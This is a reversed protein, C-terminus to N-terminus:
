RLFDRWGVRGQTLVAPDNLLLAANKNEVLAQNESASGERWGHWSVWYAIRPYDGILRDRYRRTDFSGARAAAGGLTPGFEAQGLPKGWRQYQDYDPIELSDTYRTGAVVDVYGDPYYPYMPAIHASDWPTRPDPNPSFVWLLNHLGKTETFYRYMDRWVARYQEPSAKGWWFWDGNMEQLPRWLVVVGADRLEALAAAIVDLKHLWLAHIPKDPDTLDILKFDGRSATSSRTRDGAVGDWLPFHPSWNITVLSGANWCGILYRNVESLREPPAVIVYEYDVGIMGPVQGTREKLGDIVTPYGALGGRADFDASHGINQGAIVGPVTGNTLAALYKLVAKAEPTATPDTPVGEVPPAPPASGFSVKLGVCGALLALVGALVPTWGARKM